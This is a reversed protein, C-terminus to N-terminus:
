NSQSSLFHSPDNVLLPYLLNTLGYTEALYEARDFPLWVGKLSISGVRAVVRHEEDNLIADRRTRSMGILNLLKTCNIMDNDQRRSVCIGRIEIQYCATNEHEWDVINLSPRSHNLDM